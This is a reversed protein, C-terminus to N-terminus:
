GNEPGPEKATKTLVASCFTPTNLSAENLQDLQRFQVAREAVAPLRAGYVM